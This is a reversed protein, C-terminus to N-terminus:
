LDLVATLLHWTEFVRKGAGLDILQNGKKAGFVSGLGSRQWGLRRGDRWDLISRM